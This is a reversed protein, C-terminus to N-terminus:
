DILTKAIANSWFYTWIVPYGRVAHVSGNDIVDSGIKLVAHAAGSGDRTILLRLDEPRYDGRAILVEGVTLAQDECDGCMGPRLVRWTDHEPSDACAGAQRIIQRSVCAAADLGHTGTCQTLDFTIM